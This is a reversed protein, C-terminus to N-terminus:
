PAPNTHQYLVSEYRSTELAVTTKEGVGIVEAKNAVIIRPSTKVIAWKNPVISTIIDM